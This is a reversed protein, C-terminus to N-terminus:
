AAASRITRAITGPPEPWRTPDAKRSGSGTIAVADGPRRSRGPLRDGPSGGAPRAPRVTYQQQGVLRIRQSVGLCRGWRWRKQAAVTRAQAGTAPRARCRAARRGGGDAGHDDGVPRVYRRSRGARLFAYASAMAPHDSPLGSTALALTCLATVGTREHGWSGGPLQQQILFQQGLEIARVVQERLAADDGRAPAACVLPLLLLVGGWRAVPCSCRTFEMM